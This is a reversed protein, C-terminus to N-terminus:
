PAGHHLRNLVCDASIGDYWGADSVQVYQM